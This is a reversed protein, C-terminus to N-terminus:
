GSATPEAPLNKMRSKADYLLHALETCLAPYLLFLSRLGQLLDKYKSDSSHIAMIEDQM